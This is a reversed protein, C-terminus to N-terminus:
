ADVPELERAEVSEAEGPGSSRVMMFRGSFAATIAWSGEVEDGESSLRGSYSIPATYGSAAVHPGTDLYTKIFWVHRGTRRGRVTAFLPKGTAPGQTGAEQVEGSIAGGVDSLTAVFDPGLTQRAYSYQGHWVGTLDPDSSSADTM